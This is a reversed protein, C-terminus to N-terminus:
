ATARETNTIVPSPKHRWTYPYGRANVSPPGVVYGGRGRYDIGPLIGARNGLDIKDAIYLHLGAGATSVVGHVDPIVDADEMQWFSAWGTPADIDIVDFHHGTPLGINAHPQRTWWTTIQDPDTTADKFGNRTAPVKLGPLLPFVAWGWSAYLHAASALRPPQQQDIVPALQDAELDRGALLHATYLHALDAAPDPTQGCNPHTSTGTHDLLLGCTTCTTYLNM